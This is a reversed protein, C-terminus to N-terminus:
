RIKGMKVMVECPNGQVPPLTVHQQSARADIDKNHGDWYAQCEPLTKMTQLKAVYAQREQETMLQAGRINNGSSYWPFAHALSAILTLALTAAIRKM